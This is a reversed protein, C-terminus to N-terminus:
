DRMGQSPQYGLSRLAFTLVAKDVLVNGDVRVLNVMDDRALVAALSLGIIKGEGAQCAVTALARVECAEVREAIYHDREKMWALVSPGFM